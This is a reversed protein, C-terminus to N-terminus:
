SGVAPSKSKASALPGQNWSCLNAYRNCREAVVRSVRGTLVQGPANWLGYFEFDTPPRKYISEFKQVRQDLLRLAVQRAIEPDTYRTSSTISSWESKLVQYRSIEGARGVMKDDNGTEIMSLASMRDMGFSLMPILSLLLAFRMAWGQGLGSKRVISALEPPATRLLVYLVVRFVCLLRYEPYKCM